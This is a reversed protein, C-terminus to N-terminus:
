SILPQVYCSFAQQPIKVWFPLHHSIPFQQEFYVEAWFFPEISTTLLKKLIFLLISKWLTEGTKCRENKPKRFGKVSIISTLPGFRMTNHRSLPSFSFLPHLPPSLSIFSLFSNIQGRSEEEKTATAASTTYIVM